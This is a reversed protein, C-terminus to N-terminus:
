GGDHARRLAALDIKVMAMMATMVRQSAPSRQDGIWELLQSPFVQWSVGYRDKLWGCQSAEGGGALLASWYRDIEAQDRCPIQFSIAETFHFQPGGNLATFPQGGLEFAVTLVTGPQQGHQERGAEGYRTTSTIRSGAFVSCYFRAAEEAQGDFWLCPAIRPPTM